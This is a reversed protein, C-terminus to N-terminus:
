NVRRKYTQAWVAPGYKGVLRIPRIAYYLFSLPAPIAVVARDQANPTIRCLGLGERIAAMAYPARDRWRERSRAYFLRSELWGYSGDLRRSDSPLSFLRDQLERALRAAVIEDNLRRACEGALPAGLVEHALALGVLMLREGGARRAGDIIQGWELTHAHRRVLAAVDLIWGLRSWCHRAPHACLMMLLHAPSPQWVTEAGVRVPELGQWLAELDIPVCHRPEGFAWQLDVVIRGHSSHRVTTVSVDNRLVVAYGRLELCEIARGAAHPPVAIDLDSFQRLGVDGHLVASLVPGKFPVAAIGREAFSALIELLEGTWALARQAHWRRWTRMQSLVPAPVEDVCERLAEVLQPLVGHQRATRVVRPWDAVQRAAEGLRQDSGAGVATRLSRVIVEHEAPGTM